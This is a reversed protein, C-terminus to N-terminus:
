KFGSTLNEGVINLECELTMTAGQLEKLEEICDYMESTHEENTFKFEYYGFLVDTICNATKYLERILKKVDSQTLKNCKKILSIRERFGKVAYRLTVTKQELLVRSFLEREM